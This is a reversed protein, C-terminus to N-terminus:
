AMFRGVAPIRRLMVTLALSIVTVGSPFLATHETEPWYCDFVYKIVAHHILYVGFSNVSLFRFVARMREHGTGADANRCLATIAVYVACATAAITVSRDNFLVLMDNHTRFAYDYLAATVAASVAVIVALGCWLARGSFYRYPPYRHLYAGVVAFGFYNYFLGLVGLSDTPAGWRASLYPLTMSLAWLGIFWHYQRRSASAVWPSIFPMFLYVGLITYGFWGPPFTPKWLMRKATELMGADSGEGLYRNLLLYVVTWLMFPVGVRLLRHRYFAGYPASVPLLLAGSVMFLLDVAAGNVFHWVAAGPSPYAMPCTHQMVVMFIATVRIIDMSLLRHSTGATSM